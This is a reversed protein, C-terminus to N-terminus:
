SDNLPSQLKGGSIGFMSFQQIALDTTKCTSSYRLYFFDLKLTFDLIFRGSFLLM